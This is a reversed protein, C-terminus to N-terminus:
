LRCTKQLGSYSRMLCSINRTETNSFWIHTEQFVHKNLEFLSWEWAFVSRIFIWWTGRSWHRRQDYTRLKMWRQSELFGMMTERCRWQRNHALSTAPVSHIKSFILIKTHIFHAKCTFLLWNALAGSPERHKSWHSSAAATPFFGGSAEQPLLLGLPSPNSKKRGKVPFTFLCSFSSLLACTLIM